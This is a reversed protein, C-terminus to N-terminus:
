RASGHPRGDGPWTRGLRVQTGQDAAVPSRSAWGGGLPVAAPINQRARYDLVAAISRVGGLDRQAATRQLVETGDMGALEGARLTRYLWTARYDDTV